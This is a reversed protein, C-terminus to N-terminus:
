AAALVGSIRLLGVEGPYGDGAGRLVTVFVEDGAAVAVATGARDIYQKAQAATFGTAITLPSDVTPLNAPANAAPVRRFTVTLNPVAGAALGMVRLKLTLTPNVLALTSPVQFRARLSKQEGAEFGLYMVNNVFEETAGDGGLRVLDPFIERDDATDLDIGVRGHHLTRAVGGITAQTQADSTLTVGASKAYVATAVPGRHFKGAEADWEKLALHGGPDADDSLFELNLRIELPGVHKPVLPDGGECFISIREDRTTLSTVVTQDTLFEFKSFFLDLRMRDVYPCDDPTISVELSESVAEFETSLDAPWPVTDNCDSLWWIGNRDFVVLGQDGDPVMVGSKVLVANEPPLPPWAQRLAPNAAINYGFKANFCAKGNFSAHNAPLWGEVAPNPNTVVHRAGPAPPVHTGAPRPKLRFRLHTHKTLDDWQPNVFVYGDGSTRLIPVAIPQRGSVLKGASTRSLYYTSPRITEGAQLAPTIDLKAYGFLLLDCLTSNIKKFVVGWAQGAASAVLGSTQADFEVGAIAREFRSTAANYYVPEGVLVDPATTVQRAFVTSGIFSANLVDWLYRTRADIASLPRNPVGADLPEGNRILQIFDNFDLPNPTAM